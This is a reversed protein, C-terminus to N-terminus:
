ALYAAGVAESLPDGEAVLVALDAPALGNTPLSLTLTQGIGGADTSGGGATGSAGGGGGGGCGSMLLPLGLSFLCIALRM